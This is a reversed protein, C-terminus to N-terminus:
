TQLLRCLILNVGCQNNSINKIWPAVMPIASREWGCGGLLILASGWKLVKLVSCDTDENVTFNFVWYTVPCKVFAFSSKCGGQPM